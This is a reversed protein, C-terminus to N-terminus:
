SKEKVLGLSKRSCIYYMCEETPTKPLEVVNTKIPNPTRANISTDSVPDDTCLLKPERKVELTKVDRVPVCVCGPIAEFPENPSPVHACFLGPLLFFFSMYLSHHCKDKATSPSIIEKTVKNKEKKRKGKTEITRELIEQVLV